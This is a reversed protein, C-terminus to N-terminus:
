KIRDNHAYRYFMNFHRRCVSKYQSAGVAISDGAHVVNGNDDFRLHHTALHKCGNIQCTSETRHLTAGVEVLRRSAPFIHENSDVMLGYCLVVIDYNDAIRVLTDIDSEAFFQVEDVLIFQTGPTPVYSCLNPLAVADTEIGIRSVIKTASDRNDTTPKIVEIKNGTHRFNFANIGLLASKSSGMVGYHFHLNSM